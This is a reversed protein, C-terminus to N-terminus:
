DRVCTYKGVINKIKKGKKFGIKNRELTNEKKEVLEYLSSLITVGQETFFMPAYRLSM